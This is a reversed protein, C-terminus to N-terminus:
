GERPDTVHWVRDHLERIAAGCFACQKHGLNTVPAGCNPCHLSLGMKASDYRMADQIYIIDTVFRSEKHKGEKEYAASTQTEIRCLGAEHEYRSIVTRHIKTGSTGPEKAIYKKVADQVKRRFEEWNFGPFDKEILPLMLDTMSSVSREEALFRDKAEAMGKLVDSTGFVSRSLERAKKRVKFCIRLIVAILAAVALILLIGVINSM